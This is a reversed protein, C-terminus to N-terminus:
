YTKGWLDKYEISKSAKAQKKRNIIKYGSLGKTKKFAYPTAYNIGVGGTFSSGTTGGGTSSEENLTMEKIIKKINDKLEEIKM